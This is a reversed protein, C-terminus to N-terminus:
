NLALAFWEVKYDATSPRCKLILIDDAVDYFVAKKAVDSYIPELDSDLCIFQVKKIQKGYLKDANLVFIYISVVCKFM